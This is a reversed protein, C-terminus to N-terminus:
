GLSQGTVATDRAKGEELLESDFLEPIVIGCALYPVVCKCPQGDGPGPQARQVQRQEGGDGGVGERQQWSGEGAEADRNAVAWRNVM